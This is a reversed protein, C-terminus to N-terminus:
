TAQGCFVGDQISFGASAFMGVWMAEDSFLFNSAEDIQNNFGIGSMPQGNPAIQVSPM